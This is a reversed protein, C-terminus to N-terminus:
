PNQRWVGWVGTNTKLRPTIDSLQLQSWCDSFPGCFHHVHPFHLCGAVFIVVVVTCIRVLRLASMNLDELKPSPKTIRHFSGWFVLFLYFVRLPFPVNSKKLLIFRWIYNIRHPYQKCELEQQSFNRGIKEVWNECLRWISIMLLGWHRIVTEVKIQHEYNSTPDMHHRFFHQIRHKPRQM